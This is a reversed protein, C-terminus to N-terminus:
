KEQNKQTRLQKISGYLAGMSLLLAVGSGIPASGGPSQNGGMGHGGGPPPPPDQPMASFLCLTFIATLILTKFKM